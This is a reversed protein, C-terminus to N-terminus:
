DEEVLLKLQKGLEVLKEGYEYLPNSEVINYYDALYAINNSLKDISWYMNSIMLRYFPYSMEQSFTEIDM